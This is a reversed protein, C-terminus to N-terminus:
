PRGPGSDTLPGFAPRTALARLGVLNGLEDSVRRAWTASIHDYDGYVMVDDVVAPCLTPGCVLRTTDVFPVGLRAATARLARNGELVADRAPALCTRLVAHPDSLCDGPEFPLGSVDALIRLEPSVERLRHVLTAVGPGWAATECLYDNTRSGLIVAQPGLRTLQPLAWSHYRACESGTPDGLPVDYPSCGYKIFPVLRFGAAEAVPRLSPLWMAAHSDGYVAVTVNSDGGPDPCLDHSTAGDAAACPPGVGGLDGDLRDQNALPYPIPAGAKALELSRAVLTTASPPQRRETRLPPVRRESHDAEFALAQAARQESLDPATAGALMTGAVVSGLALPWLLLGRRGGFLTRSHRIPNELVYHTATALVLVLGLLLTRRGPSVPQGDYASLGVALVPWHWLYLSYSLDGLWPLPPLALLRSPGAVAGPRSAVIVAATGAVPLAARWGPFASGAGFSTAAVVILALGATSLLARLWGPWACGSLRAAVVALTAGVALEWARASTSFYAADPSRKTLIVSCLFSAVLIGIALTAVISRARWARGRGHLVAAAAVAIVMPWFLYFQEEVALSWYHQLPSTAQGQAWYDTGVAAFRVNALFASSWVADDQIRDARVASVEHAAYVCTAVLVLSAAPLLRRARQAYFRGVQLHGTQELERLLLSTIFFGSVVLFVDVGIFGGSMWPVGAHMGIVLLVAIARLGQIDIRRPLPM